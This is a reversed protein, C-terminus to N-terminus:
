QAGPSSSAPEEIILINSPNDLIEQMNRSDPTGPLEGMINGNYGANPTTARNGNADVSSAYQDNAGMVHGFEHGGEGSQMGPSTLNIEGSNGGVGSIFSAGQSQTDSTPGNILTINNIAGVPTDATVPVVSVSVTTATSSGNVFYNGSWMSSTDSALTHPSTAAPGIFNTPIKIDITGDLKYTIIAARGDPDTFKYSNNNAYWYRNFNTGTNGDAPVPDVSLFRGIAPDYYRQQMYTLGTATDQVHGTYGPGDSVPGSIQAGYPAYQNREIVTRTPDTVAVPSGLADTHQYRTAVAGSVPDLRRTAVLSGGLHIYNTRLDLRLDSAYMLQGAQNYQSYKSHGHTDRVRRGHGDYVYSSVAGSTPTVSRLRNGRDFTYTANTRITVNGRADYGLTDIVTGASNRVTSLVNRTADHTYTVHSKNGVRASLLNDLVDYGFSAVGDGGFMPATVGTLRDFNDYTMTRNGPAGPLGDSIAAVNGNADYDYNDDHVAVGGYADRSREALGRLNQTLEHVIGNGYTFQKISGDPHYSVSTAYGGAQTPQGLANPLYTVSTNDPYTQSALHGNTSYGYGLNWNVGPWQLNEGTLLRRKNYVYTTTVVNSAGNDTVLTHPQGDPYYTYTTNGLNDPFTLATLRNRPDYARNIKATASISSTCTTTAPVGPASWALNGAADYAFVTTGGEPESTRCLEQNSNYSYGRTATITGADNRQTMSLPKGFANRVIDTNITVGADAHKIISVPWDTIPAGYALYSTTVQKGRPNTTRTKFGALYDTTAVLPASGLENDQEARTLRGLADYQSRVGQTIAAVSSTSAVPYSAFTARGEHDYGFASFRSSNTVNATDYERSLVPRWLGDFYSVKRYNGTAVTQRWHGAPIGYESVAVPEFVQTTPAWAVTDSEPYTVKALRGMPDYEYATTFGNEDTVSALTGDDNVVASETTTDPHQILQPVGRKWNSLTTTYNRGDTVSKLPGAGYYALSHALKGFAYQRLPMATVADFETSNAVVGNISTSAQQGLVWKALNDHYTMATTRSGLSSAQAIALPRAFVDFTQTTASFGVGQVTTTSSGLPHLESSYRDALTNPNNGVVAPFPQLAVQANSLYTNETVSLISAASPGVETKLLQGENIGYANGFHQREFRGGPGVIDVRRNGMLMSSNWQYRWEMPELQVGSVLKRQLTFSDIVNPIRLYEYTFSPKICWHPVDTRAHPLLEFEFRASAGAPHKVVYDYHGTASELRPPCDEIGDETPPVWVPPTADLQGSASYTWTSNDPLTVKSLSGWTYAYQWQQGNASASALNGGSYVLDIRRGDSAVVNQLKDGAYTYNVWNGFRDEVRTALLFVNVRPMTGGLGSNFSSKYAGYIFKPAERSVAWDFHYRIGEPSVAFFGEGALGNKTAPKCSLRWFSKTIWPYTQGDSPAPLASSPTNLLSQDGGGPIHMSYGNFYEIAPFQGVDPPAATNSCRATSKANGVVWGLSEAFTGRVYPVDLDWEGVGGLYGWGIPGNSSSGRNEVRFSRRLEVPLANNGALSIDAVNFEVSGDFMNTRDGFADVKLATVKTARNFADLHREHMGYGPAGQASAVGSVLAFALSLGAAIRAGLRRAPTSVSGARSLVGCEGSSFM